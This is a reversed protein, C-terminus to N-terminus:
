LTLRREKIEYTSTCKVRDEGSFSNEWVLNRKLNGGGSRYSLSRNLHEKSKM